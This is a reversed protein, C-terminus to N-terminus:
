REKELSAMCRDAEELEVKLHNALAQAESARQETRWQKLDRGPGSTSLKETCARLNTTWSASSGSRVTFFLSRHGALSDDCGSCIRGFSGRDAWVKMRQKLTPWRAELPEDPESPLLDTMRLTNYGVDGEGTSTHCLEKM